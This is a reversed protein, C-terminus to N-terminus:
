LSVPTASDAFGVSVALGAGEASLEFAPAIGEEAEVEEIEKAGSLPAAESQALQMAESGVMRGPLPVGPEVAYLPQLVHQLPQVVLGQILLIVLLRRFM